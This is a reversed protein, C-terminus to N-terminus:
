IPQQLKRHKIKYLSNVDEINNHYNEIKSMPKRKLPVLVNDAGKHYTYGDNVHMEFPMPDLTRRSKDTAQAFQM